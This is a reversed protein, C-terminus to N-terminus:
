VTPPVAAAALPASSVPVRLPFSKVLTHEAGSGHLTSSYLDFHTVRFAQPPFADIIRWWKTADEPKRIRALTLHAVFRTPDHQSGSRQIATRVRSALTGIDAGGTTIGQYLERARTVDPFAGAGDLMLDFADTRKAVHGLGEILREEKGDAVDPLFALTVHAQDTRIWRVQPDVERRPEVLATLTAIVAEPPQVAVFMRTGM